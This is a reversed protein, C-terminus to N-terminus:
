PLSIYPSFLSPGEAQYRQFPCSLFVARHELYQSIIDKCEVVVRNLPMQWILQNSLLQLATLAACLPDRDNALVSIDRLALPDAKAVQHLRGLLLTGAGCCIEGISHTDPIAPLFHMIATAQDWPTFHQCDKKKRGTGVLENFLRGLICEFPEFAAVAEGYALGAERGWDETGEVDEGLLTWDLSLALPVVGRQCVEMMQNLVGIKLAFATFKRMQDRPSDGPIAQIAKLLRQYAAKRPDLAPKAKKMSTSKSM